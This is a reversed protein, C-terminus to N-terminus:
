EVFRFEKVKLAKEMESSIISTHMNRGIVDLPHGRIIEFYLEVNKDDVLIDKWTYVITHPSNHRGDLSVNGIAKVYEPKGWRNICMGLTALDSFEGSSNNFYLTEKFDNYRFSEKDSTKCSIGMFVLLVSFYVLRNAM